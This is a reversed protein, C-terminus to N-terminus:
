TPSLMVVEITLILQQFKILVVRVVCGLAKSFGKRSPNPDLYNIGQFVLVVLLLLFFHALVELVFLFLVQFM